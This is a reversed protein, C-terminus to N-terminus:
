RLVMLMRSRAHAGSELRYLYAGSPLRSADFVYEHRGEPLHRNDLIRAVERGVLDFVRISTPAPESLTFRVTTASGFPNPHNQDLSFSRTYSPGNPEISTTVLDAAFRMSQLRLLNDGEPGVFRLYVDHRGTVDAVPATFTEYTLWSGTDEILVDAVKRGTDLSDLWIEVTGGGTASSAVLSVERVRKPYIIRGDSALEGGFEVGAYMAWTDNQIDGLYTSVRRVGNRNVPFRAAIESYADRYIYLNFYAPTSVVYPGQQNGTFDNFQTVERGLQAANISEGIQTWEHGDASYYGSLVHEDRQLKLWVTSGITNEAEYRTNDFSFVFIPEAADNVSSFVKAQLTEPGNIIWLGAEDLSSLPEAELRTVLSYQHEGDNKLVTNSGQRPTLFLWGPRTTLSYSNEPTQGLFSWEPDLHPADFMDSKPVMWPVGGSPLDPATEAFNSPYYIYPWDDEDYHVQHLLGQRGHAQWAAGMFYSHGIAWSTGDDLQVVPSIHNPRDFYGRTGRFMSGAMIEWAERDDTLTESRMVYQQGVLHEAFSYYYYNGRKWMVPGEAWVYPHGESAPNLWTLDLVTGNPQGEEDLEVIHNNGRGAKTLLFWRGSEEDIFISNDVGLGGMGPPRTVVQPYSWPGQPAEATVFYMNGGGRGFYHWYQGHHFVMHGGWIGGGPQNGYVPWSSLIPQAIAEWHVLNTSRYIKPTPNFSSGSTYFYDGIQTLTPDPHDGPIVPNVFTRHSSPREDTQSRAETAFLVGFLLIAAILGSLRTTM